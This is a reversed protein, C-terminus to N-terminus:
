AWRRHWAQFMIITGLAYQRNRRGSMHLDLYRRIYSVGFLDSASLSKEWLPTNVWEALPGRIWDVLPIGFSIKQREFLAPPVHRALIERLIHKGTGSKVLMNRPLRWAYEVARHDLLSVGTPTLDVMALRRHGFAIGATEDIWVDGADLGRHVLLNAMTRVTAHDGEDLGVRKLFGTVGCMAATGIEACPPAAAM